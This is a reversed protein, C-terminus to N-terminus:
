RSKIRILTVISGRSAFDYGDRLTSFILYPASPNEYSAFLLSGHPKRQEDQDGSDDADCGWRRSLISRLAIPWNGNMVTFMESCASMLADRTSQGRGRCFDRPVRPAPNTIWCPSRIHINRAHGRTSTTKLLAANM